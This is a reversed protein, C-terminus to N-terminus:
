IFEGFLLSSNPININKNLYKNALIQIEVPFDNGLSVIKNNLVSKISDSIYDQENFVRM